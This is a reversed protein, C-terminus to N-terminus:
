VSSNSDPFRAHLIDAYRRRRSRGKEGAQLFSLLWRIRAGVRLSVIALREGGEGHFKRAYRRLGDHLWLDRRAQPVAASAAGGTHRAEASPEFRIAWGAQRLRAFLDSEEAYFFYGEDFGGAARFAKGRVLFVSGSLTEVERPLDHPIRVTHHGDFFSGPLLRPLFLNEFLIRRPTPARFISPVVRGADDRLRPGAAAARPDRDLAAILSATCGPQLEVDNNAFLLFEAELGRAGLNCAAGYGRNGGAEVIRAGPLSLGPHGGNDVVVIPLGPADAAISAVARRTIGAEGYHVVVAAARSTVDPM